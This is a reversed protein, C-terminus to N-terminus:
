PHPVLKFFFPDISVPVGGALTRTGNPGTTVDRLYKVSKHFKPDNNACFVGYFTEDVVALDVFDGIYPDYQFVPTDAPTQSLLINRWRTQDENSITIRTEWYTHSGNKVYKQYLLAVRGRSDVAVAPNLANDVTHLDRGISKGGDKSVVLHLTMLAAGPKDAYAIYVIGPDDPHVALAIQDSGRVQQGMPRRVPENEIDEPITTCRVLRVGLKGDTGAGKGCSDGTGSSTGPPTESLGGLPFSGNASLTGGVLVLDYKGLKKPVPRFFAAYAKGSNHVVPRVSEDYAGKNNDRMAVCRAAEPQTGAWWWVMGNGCGDSTGMGSFLIGGVILGTQGPAHLAATYPLDIDVIGGSPTLDTTKTTAADKWNTIEVVRGVAYNPDSEPSIYSGYLLTGDGSFDLSVDGAPYWRTWPGDNDTGSSPRLPLQCRLSWTDGGDFSMVMASLDRRCFGDDQGTGLFLASVAITGPSQWDVAINPEAHQTTDSSWDAVIVDVITQDYEPVAAPAPADVLMPVAALAM